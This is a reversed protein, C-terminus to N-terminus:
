APRLYINGFPQMKSEKLGNSLFFEKEQNSKLSGVAYRNEDVRRIFIERSSRTFNMMAM